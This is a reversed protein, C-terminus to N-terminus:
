NSASTMFDDSASTRLMVKKKNERNTKTMMRMRM